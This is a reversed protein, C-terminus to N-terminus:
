NVAKLKTLESELEAIKDTRCTKADDASITVNKVAQGLLIPEMCDRWFQKRKAKHQKYGAHLCSKAIMECSKSDANMEDNAFVPQVIFLAALVLVVSKISM